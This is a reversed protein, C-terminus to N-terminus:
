SYLLGFRRNTPVKLKNKNFERKWEKGIVKSIKVADTFAGTIYMYDEKERGVMELLYNKKWKWFHCDINLINGNVLDVTKVNFKKIGHVDTILPKANYYSLYFSVENGSNGCGAVLVNKGNYKAGTDYDKAHILEGSFDELGEIEPIMGEFNEGTAVVLWRSIYETESRTSGITSVTKVRWINCAVDYKASQVCENYHPKIDFRKAYDELYATVQKKILYEPYGEPFPIKPLEYIKQPLNSTSNQFLSAICDSKEIVTFPLGQDMLCASVALGSPGAGVIIAGNTVVRVKEIM